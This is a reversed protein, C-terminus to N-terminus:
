TSRWALKGTAQGEEVDAADAGVMRPGDGQGLEYSHRDAPLRHKKGPGGDAVESGGLRENKQPLRALHRPRASDEQDTHIEFLVFGSQIGGVGVAPADRLLEVEVQQVPDIALERRIELHLAEAVLGEVVRDEAADLHVQLALVRLEHVDGAPPEIKRGAFGDMGFNGTLVRDCFELLQAFPGPESGFFDPGIGLLQEADVSHDCGLRGDSESTQTGSSPDTSRGTSSSASTCIWGSKTTTSRRRRM